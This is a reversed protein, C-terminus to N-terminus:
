RGVLVECNAGLKRIEACVYKAKEEDDFEFVLEQGRILLNVHDRASVLSLQVEKHLLLDLSVKKLGPNWGKIRIKLM